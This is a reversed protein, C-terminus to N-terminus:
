YSWSLSKLLLDEHEAPAERKSQPCVALHDLISEASELLSLVRQAFMDHCNDVHVAGLRQEMRGDQLALFWLMWDSDCFALPEGYLGASKQPFICLVLQLSHGKSRPSRHVDSVLGHLVRRLLGIDSAEQDSVTRPPVIPQPNMNQLPRLSPNIAFGAAEVPARSHSSQEFHLLCDGSIKTHVVEVQVFSLIFDSLGLLYCCSNRCCLHFLDTLCHSQLVL